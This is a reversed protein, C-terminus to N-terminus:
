NKDIKEFKGTFDWSMKASILFKLTDCAIEIKNSTKRTSDYHQTKVNKMDASIFTGLSYFNDMCPKM